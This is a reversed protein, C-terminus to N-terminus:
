CYDLMVNIFIQFKSINENITKTTGLNIIANKLKNSDRKWKTVGNKYANKACTCITLQTKMDHEFIFIFM